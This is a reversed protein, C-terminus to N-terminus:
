SLTTRCRFQVSATEEAGCHSCVDCVNARESREEPGIKIEIQQEGKTNTILEAPTVNIWYLKM